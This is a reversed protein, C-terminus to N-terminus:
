ASMQKNRRAATNLRLQNQRADFPNHPFTSTVRDFDKGLQLILDPNQLVIFDHFWQDYNDTHVDLTDASMSTPVLSGDRYAQPNNGYRVLAVCVEEEDSGREKCNLPVFYISAVISCEPALEIRERLVSVKEETDPDYKLYKRQALSHFQLGKNTMSFHRQHGFKHHRVMNSSKAFLEPSTALMGSNNEDAQQWAFISEDDHEKLIEMQLRFFAREAGEGYIIPLSLNFLGILCYAMDEERTTKRNAVWSIRQAVSTNAIINPDNVDKIQTAAEIHIALTKRDGLERWNRNFFIVSGPGPALLEQLTWGRKFWDSDIFDKTEGRMDDSAGSEDGEELVDHSINM